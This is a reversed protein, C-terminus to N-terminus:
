LLIMIVNSIHMYQKCLNTLIIKEELNKLGDNQLFFLLFFTFHHLSNLVANPALRSLIVAHINTVITNLYVATTKLTKLLSQQLGLLVHCQVMENVKLTVAV